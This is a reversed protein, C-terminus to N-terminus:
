GDGNSWDVQNSDFFCSYYILLSEIHIRVNKAVRLDSYGRSGKIFFRIKKGNDTFKYSDIKDWTFLIYKNIIGKERIEVVSLYDFFEYMLELCFFILIILSLEFYIESKFENGPFFSCIFITLMLGFIASCLFLFLRLIVERDFFKLNNKVRLIVQGLEDRKNKTKLVDRLLLIGVV